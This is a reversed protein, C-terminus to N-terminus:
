FAFLVCSCIFVGLKKNVKSFWSHQSHLEVQSDAGESWVERGGERGGRRLSRSHTGPHTQTHVRSCFLARSCSHTKKKKKLNWIADMQTRRQAHTCHIDAATSNSQNFVLESSISLEWLDWSAMKCDRLYLAPSLPWIHQATRERPKIYLVCHSDCHGVTVCTKTANFQIYTKLLYILYLKLEYRTFCFLVPNTELSFTFTHATKCKCHCHHSTSSPQLRFYGKICDVFLSAPAPM